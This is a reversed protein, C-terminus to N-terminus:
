RKAVDFIMCTETGHAILKGSADVLRGESTALTGGRHIVVGECTLRGSSPLVPRVFNLKMEVTTYAQGAKLTTHVACAMASDLIASTWGGHITGIPNFFGESPLGAFVARGEDAETLWIGTSRAFPPAPHRGEIMGRLFALGPEAILLERPVVGFIRDTPFGEPAVPSEAPKVAASM